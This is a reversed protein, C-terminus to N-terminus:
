RPFLMSPSPEALAFTRPHPIHRAHKLLLPSVLPVSTSPYLSISNWPSTSAIAHLTFLNPKSQVLHSGHPFSPLPLVPDSAPTPFAAPLGVLTAAPGM